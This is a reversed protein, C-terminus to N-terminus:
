IGCTLSITHYNDKEVQTVKSIIIGEFNMWTTEFSSIEDSKHSLPIGNHILVVDEKDM